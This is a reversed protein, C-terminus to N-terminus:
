KSKKSIKSWIRSLAEKAPIAVPGGKGSIIIPWGRKLKYNLMQFYADQLAGSIRDWNVRGEGDAAMDLFRLQNAIPIREVIKAYGEYNVQGDSSAILTTESNNDYVAWESVRSMFLHILNQLGLWYRREIVEPLINHGGERVRQAVRDMAIKPSDLWFFLLVVSYGEDKAQKVLRVYSSTALTTEIAFTTMNRLNEQIAGLMIRGARIAVAEPNSPNLQAAIEDANLFQPCELISPLLRRSATTKGAGNPGAIIYLKPTM